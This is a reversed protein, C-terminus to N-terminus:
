REISKRERTLFFKKVEVGPPWSGASMLTKSYHAPISVKFSSYVEPHKSKLPVVECPTLQLDALHERVDDATRSPDVRFVHFHHMQGVGSIKNEKFMGSGVISKTVRRQRGSSRTVVKWDKDAADTTNGVNVDAPVGASPPGVECRNSPQNKQSQLRVESKNVELAPAVNHDDNPQIPRDSKNRGTSIANAGRGSGRVGNGVSQTKTKTAIRSPPAEGVRHRLQENEEMLQCNQQELLSITLRLEMLREKMCNYAEMRFDVIDEENGGNTTSVPSVGCCSKLRRLCGPHYVTRCTSCQSGSKAIHGCICKKLENISGNQDSRDAPSVQNAAM